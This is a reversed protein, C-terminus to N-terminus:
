SVLLCHVNHDTGETSSSSMSSSATGNTTSVIPMVNSCKTRTALPLHGFLRHLGCRIQVRFETVRSGFPALWLATFWLLHALAKEVHQHGDHTSWCCPFSCGRCRRMSLRGLYFLHEGVRDNSLRHLTELGIRCLVRSQHLFIWRKFCGAFARQFLSCPCASQPSQVKPSQLAMSAQIHARLTVEEVGLLM